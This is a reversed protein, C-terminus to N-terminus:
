ASPRAAQASEKFLFVGCHPCVAIRGPQNLEALLGVPLRLHCNGCSSGSIAAVSENGTRAMRDHHTLLATPLRARLGSIRSECQERQHQDLGPRKLERVATNLGRLQDLLERPIM